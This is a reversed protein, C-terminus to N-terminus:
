GAPPFPPALFALLTLGTSAENSIRLEDEGDLHALSGAGFRIPGDPGVLTGEGEVAYLMLDSPAHKHMPLVQGPSLRILRVNSQACALVEEAVLREADYDPGDALTIIKM